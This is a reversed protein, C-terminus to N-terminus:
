TKDLVRNIKVTKKKEKAAKDSGILMGTEM